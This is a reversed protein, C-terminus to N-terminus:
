KFCFYHFCFSVDIDSLSINQDGSLIFPSMAVFESNSILQEEQQTLTTQLTQHQQQISTSSSSYNKPTMPSSTAQQSLTQYQKQVSITTKPTMPSSIIKSTKVASSLPSRSLNGIDYRPILVSSTIQKMSAKTPYAKPRQIIENHNEDGDTNSELAMEDIEREVDEKSAINRRKIVEDIVLWKGNGEMVPQSHPDNQLVTQNQKPWYIIERGDSGVKIWTQPAYSLRGHRDQLVVFMKKFVFYIFIDVSFLTNGVVREM